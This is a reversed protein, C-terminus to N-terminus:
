DLDQTSLTETRKVGREDIGSITVLVDELAAESLDGPILVQGSKRPHRMFWIPKSDDAMVMKPFAMASAFLKTLLFRRKMICIRSVERDRLQYPQTSFLGKPKCLNQYPQEEDGELIEDIYRM